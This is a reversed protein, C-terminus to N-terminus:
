RNGREMIKLMVNDYPSVDNVEEDDEDEPPDPLVKRPPKPVAYDDIHPNYPYEHGSPDESGQFKWAHGIVETPNDYLSSPGRDAAIACGEPEDYIHDPRGFTPKKSESRVRIAARVASEDISDYLPDSVEESDVCVERECGKDDLKLWMTAMFSKAISDFPLSYESDQSGHKRISRPSSTDETHELREVQERPMSIQSYTQDESIMLPCSSINKVQSKHPPPRTDLTLSKVGTLVKDTPVELRPRTGSPLPHSDKSQVNNVTSYVSGNDLPAEVGGSAQRQPGMNTKQLDIAREVAQFLVNGQKTEFEFNGEGSDCRRGAEFSFTVKDRGFRRLFRYPWSFLVEGTKCDKLLLSNFDTRLLYSGRLRCRESGETKRINVKFDKMVSERAGYLTNDEMAAEVLEPRSRLISGRKVTGAEAWNMPFAIECLAQTWGELESNEAAFLFIKETTEVLFPQCDRPCSEVQVESVRICDRLKIVKKNEQKRLTRDAKEANAAGSDKFEFFEMRSVSCSSERYIISWVKKWKQMPPSQPHCVDSRM